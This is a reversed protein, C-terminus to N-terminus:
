SIGIDCLVHNKGVEMVVMAAMAHSLWESLRVFHTIRPLYSIKLNM